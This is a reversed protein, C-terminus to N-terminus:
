GHIRCARSGGISATARASRDIPCRSRIPKVHFVAAATSTEATSICRRIGAQDSQTPGRASATARDPSAHPGDPPPPVDLAGVTRDVSDVRPWGVAAPRPDGRRDAQHTAAASTRSLVFVMFGSVLGLAAGYRIRAGLPWGVESGPRCATERARPQAVQLPSKLRLHKVFARRLTSGTARAHRVNCAVARIPRGVARDVGAGPEDLRICPCCSALALPQRQSTRSAPSRQPRGSPGSGPHPDEAAASPLSPL